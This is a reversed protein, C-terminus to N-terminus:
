NKYCFHRWSYYDHTRRCIWLVVSSASLLHFLCYRLFGVFAVLMKRLNFLFKSSLIQRAEAAATKYSPKEFSM